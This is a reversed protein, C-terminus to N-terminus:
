GSVGVSWAAAPKALKGVGTGEGDVVVGTVKVTYKKLKGGQVAYVKFSGKFLGTKPTYTLKMASRNPKKPDSDGGLVGKKYTIAAAKDFAWKGGKVRVPVGDPLLAEVTGEPLTASTAVTVRADTRTWKGGVKAAAISYGGVSGEFGDDGIVLSLTGLGKVALNAAIPADVPVNVTTAKLTRKKGDLLTVSGSVKANHKKANPKAVKLQVVGAVNGEADYVAGDLTVAKKATWPLSPHWVQPQPPENKMWYAYVGTLGEPVIAEPTIRTGQGDPQTYWGDFTYGQRTGPEPLEGFPQGVIFALNTEVGDIEVPIDISQLTWVAFLDVIGGAVTTLNSVAEGDVYVVKGTESTAWGDFVHSELVFLNSVLCSVVDYTNTQNPMEGEGGNAHFAIEYTNATWSAYIGSDGTQVTSAATIQRGTGDPGTYWGAFSYGPKDKAPKEPLADGYPMGVILQTAVAVEGDDDIVISQVRAVTNSWAPDTEIPANGNLPDFEIVASARIVSGPTAGDKVKVRYRLHGEGRGTDDNPPLFGAYADVPYNDATTADVIRLHWKVADATHEVTTRVSWNTGPLAYTSEGDYAGSLTTDINEGFVVEGLEFTSWDLGADKPLTVYVDQAAGTANTQNEFYILYDMQEGPKVFREAGVGAPGVMENPDYSYYKKFPKKYGCYCYSGCDQRCKKCSAKCICGPPPTQRYEGCGCNCSRDCGDTVVWGGGGGGGAGSAKLVNAAMRRNAPAVEEANENQVVSAVALQRPASLLAVKEIKNDIWRGSAEDYALTHLEDTDDSRRKSYDVVPADGNICVTASVVSENGMDLIGGYRVTNNSDTPTFKACHLMSDGTGDTQEEDWVIAVSNGTNGSLSFSGVTVGEISSVRERREWIGNRLTRFYLSKVICSKLSAEEDNEDLIPSTALYFVYVTGDEFTFVKAAAVNEGDENLRGAAKGNEYAFVGQWRQGNRVYDRCVVMDGYRGLNCPMASSVSLAHADNIRIDAALEELSGGETMKPASLRRAALLAGGGGGGDGSPIPSTDGNDTDEHWDGFPNLRWKPMWRGSVKGNRWQKYGTLEFFPDIKVDAGISATNSHYSKGGTKDWDHHYEVWIEGAICADLPIEFGLTRQPGMLFSYPGAPGRKRVDKEGKIKVEGSVGFSGKIGYTNRDIDRTIVEGNSPWTVFGKTLDRAFTVQGKASASIEFGIKGLKDLADGLSFDIESGLAWEVSVAARGSLTYSSSHMSKKEESCDGFGFKRKQCWYTDLTTTKGSIALGPTPGPKGGKGFTEKDGISFGGTLGGSTERQWICCGTEELGTDKHPIVWAGIKVPLKFTGISVSPFPDIDYDMTTALLRAGALRRQSSAVNAAAIEPVDAFLMDKAYFVLMGTAADRKRLIVRFTDKDVVLLDHFAVVDANLTIADGVVVSGGTSSVRLRCAVITNTGDVPMTMALLCENAVIPCVRCTGVGDGDLVTTESDNGPVGVKLAANDMWLWAAESVPLRVLRSIKGSIEEESEPETDNGERWTLVCGDLLDDTLEYNSESTIIGAESVAVLLGTPVAYQVFTGYSDATVGVCPSASGLAGITFQQGSKVVGDADLVVGAVVGIAEGRKERQVFDYLRQACVPPKGLSAVLAAKAYVADLFAGADAFGEKYATSFADWEEDSMNGKGIFVGWHVDERSIANAVVTGGSSATASQKFMVPIRVAEGASIVLPDGQASTGLLHIVSEYEVQSGDPDRFTLNQGNVSIIPSAGDANGTNEVVVSLEYWRSSRIAEPAEVTVKFNPKGPESPYVSVVSTSTAVTGGTTTVAARYAGTNAGTLAFSASLECANAARVSTGVIESGDTAVLAVRGISDLGVGYITLSQSGTNPMSEKSLAYIAPYTDNVTVDLSGNQVKDKSDLMLYATEEGSNPPISVLVDGNPLVVYSSASAYTTPMKGFAVYAGFAEGSASHILLSGGGTPLGTLKYSVQQGQLLKVKALPDEGFDVGAVSVTADGSLCVNNATLSGEYIDRQYNATVRIACTGEAVAPVRFSAETITKEGGAVIGAVPVTGLTVVAGNASVLEVKDYWKGDTDVSGINAERWSITVLEGVTLTEPVTVSKVELDVDAGAYRPQVEYIGIDAYAGTADPTGTPTVTQITQRPQNYYDKAPAVTGDGADVCPSDAKIRYDGKEANEFKPDAWINGSPGDFAISQPRNGDDSWFLCNAVSGGSVYTDCVWLITNKLTAGSAGTNCRAVVCNTLSAGGDIGTRADEFVCNQATVTGGSRYIIRFQSQELTCGYLTTTGGTTRIIADGRNDWEGYGGYRCKVYEFKITGGDNKIEEWDGPQAVSNDGDGNTDGGFDDDKISTFVVPSSRTGNAILTAGSNVTLMKLSNFKVVAGAEITLTASSALTLNGTVIYTKHGSWRNEGKLTGSVELPMSYRYQTSEDDEWDGSLSYGGDEPVTEAGDFFTDGGMVDDYAHTLVAGKCVGLGGQEVVIGAGPMFKVIADPAITLTVGSPVTVTAVVLHVKDASWTEDAALIGSHQVVDRNVIFTASDIKVTRGDADLIKHTLDYRGDEYDAGNWTAYGEAPASAVLADRGNGGEPLTASTAVTITCEAGNAAWLTSYRLPVEDMAFMPGTGASADMPAFACWGSEAHGITAGTLADITDYLTVLCTKRSQNLNIGRTVTLEVTFTEGTTSETMRDLPIEIYKTATSNAPWDLRGTMDQAVASVGDANMTWDVSFAQPSATSVCVPIKVWGDDKRAVANEVIYLTGFTGSTGYRTQTETTSFTGGSIVSISYTGNQPTAEKGDTDGGVTDDSVSTFIINNAATGNANVRGGPEVKIGTYPLFKVVTGAQITLTVGSPVVVWQQVLHTVNNSWTTNSLLRGGEIAISQSAEIELDSDYERAELRIGASEESEAYAGQPFRDNSYITVTCRRQTTSINIGQSEYLEVTFTDFGNTIAGAALPLEIYKTGDNKSNWTLRGSATACSRSGGTRWDVCFKTTRDTSITVPIRVIGDTLAALVNAPTTATGLNSFTTYRVACNSDTYTGGSVINVSYDGDNPTAERLDSDGGITDDAAATYVVPSEETGAVILKGGQEVKFGTQECFKVVTGAEIRLTVNTPVVVWNRVLHTVNNSWTANSQLRGCEVAISQSNRVLTGNTQWGDAVTTSDWAVACTNSDAAIYETGYVLARGLTGEARNELRVAESEASEACVAKPAASTFVKVAIEHASGSINIGRGEVLRLTFGEARGEIPLEIWKKGENANSWVITGTTGDSGEWDVSFTTTRSGSVYVPIRIVGEDADVVLNGDLSATGFGGYNLNRFATWTDTFTGGSVVNITYDGTNAAAFVVPGEQSGICRLKGGPEVKVGTNPTFHVVANTVVTLTVNTPIVVANLVFNTASSDWTANSQLRGGEIAITAPVPEPKPDPDRTELRIAESEESEVCTALPVLAATGDRVLVSCRYSGGINVGEADCLEVIFTESEEEVNDNSIPIAIYKTGQSTGTWEVVGSALTYDAGFKATGDIARWKVRFASAREGSVSVPVRVEGDKESVEVGNPVTVTPHQSITTNEFRAYSDTFTGGSVVTLSWDGKAAATFVAPQEASGVVRLAGGPEVKIGTNPTFYVVANTVVTLTVGSPIVVANLVFNTAGEGWTANSQLRGGEIAISSDVGEPKPDPDRTELRIAESEESVACTPMQAAGDGGTISVTTKLRSPNANAGEVTVLEITFTRVEKVDELNVLPIDFYVTTGSVWVATGSNQTFDVGYKATGDITRWTLAARKTPATDFSVSVRAKGTARSATVAGPMSLTPLTGMTGYRVQTYLDSVTGGSQATLSWSNWVANTAGFDSDGGYVDDAFSTLVVQASSNGNFQVAGGDEVFMGTYEGFKVVAGADVTLTIGSPVVVFNRVWYVANSPWTVSSQLRGGEVAISPLNAVLLRMKDGGTPETVEQWGNALATTDWAATTLGNSSVLSQVGEVVRPAVLAMPRAEVRVAASEPSVASVFGGLPLDAAAAGLPLTASTAVMAAMVLFTKAKNM